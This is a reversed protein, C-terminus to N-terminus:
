ELDYYDELLALTETLEKRGTGRKHAAIIDSRKCDQGVVVPFHDEAQLVIREPCLWAWIVVDIGNDQAQNAAMLSVQGSVIIVLADFDPLGMVQTGEIQPWPFLYSPPVSPNQDANHPLWVRVHDDGDATWPNSVRIPTKPM